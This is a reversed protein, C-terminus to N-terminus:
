RTVAIEVAGRSRTSLDYFIVTTSQGWAIAAKSISPWTESLFRMALESELLHQSKFSVGMLRTELSIFNNENTELLRQTQMM